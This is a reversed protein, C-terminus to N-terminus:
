QQDNKVVRIGGKRIISNIEREQKEAKPKDLGLFQFLETSKVRTSEEDM